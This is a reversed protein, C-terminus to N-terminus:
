LYLTECDLIATNDCVFSPFSLFEASLYQACPECFIAILFNHQSFPAIPKVLLCFRTRLLLLFFCTLSTQQLIFITRLLQAGSCGSKISNM